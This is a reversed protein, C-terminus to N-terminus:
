RIEFNVSLSRINMVLFKTGGFSLEMLNDQNQMSQWQDELYHAFRDGIETVANRYIWIRGKEEQTHGIWVFGLPSKTLRAAYYAFTNCVSEINDGRRFTEVIQYLSMIHDISEKYMRNNNQLTDNVTELEQSQKKLMTTQRNLRETLKSLMQVILTILVFVLMFYANGQILESVTMFDGFFVFSIIVASVLYFLLNIWCFYLPLFTAAVLVPNLAYWIFPSNLGGTPILLLTIGLTEILIAIELTRFSKSFKIYIDTVTKAAGFLTIVVGFKFFLSANPQTFLYFLCTFFWSIYRYLYLIGRVGTDKRIGLLKDRLNKRYSVFSNFMFFVVEMTLKRFKM